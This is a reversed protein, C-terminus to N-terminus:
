IFSKMDKEFQALESTSMKKIAKTMEAFAVMEQLDQLSMEKFFTKLILAKDRDYLNTIKIPDEDNFLNSQKKQLEYNFDEKAEELWDDEQDMVISEVMELLEDSLEIDSSGNALEKIKESRKQFEQTFTYNDVSFM